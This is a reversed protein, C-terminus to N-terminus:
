VEVKDGANDFHIQYLDRRRDLWNRVSGSLKHQALMDLNLDHIVVMEVNPTCEAAIGDRDFSIDSPTLICSQAYHIDAVEVDPLNGTAGSMAIYCHNEICRAQACTRVRLYASRMDTNFPVFIIQAGKEIALRALEPFEIDYCVNIAIRGCDTDFVELRNGPSVGWWKAEAPTIHLKYQKGITGDRRFLYAINHVKKNETTLHTGGIINVNYKIALDTFFDLYRETYRDLHRAAEEPADSRVLPLLQTTLLEPFLVFDCRYDSATDVFYECQRTFEEFRNIRRMQYQVVCLRARSKRGEHSTSKSYNPNAWEMLVAYGCSEQDSPLYDAVVRLIKFDNALQAYLVPDKIKKSKVAAVYEEASMTEAHKHYNPIRGGIIIGRLNRRRVLEKRAAYLRRAFKLGQFEPMIVIDIGYLYEGNEDHSRIFGGDTMEKYNHAGRAATDSVIMSAASGVLKGDVEIGFQGAPFMRIQSIFQEKRWTPIDPFGQKQIKVVAEFDSERLRRVLVKREHKRLSRTAM